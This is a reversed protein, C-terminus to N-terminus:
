FLNEEKERLFEAREKALRNALRQEPLLDLNGDRVKALMKEFLPRDMTQPALFQAELAFVMLFRDGNVKAALDFHKKAEGPNGGLMPPRSAYYVGYFLHPGGYFFNPALELLRAMMAEVIALDSVSRVDEKTLNIYGGWNLATWFVAEVDKQSLGALEKRLPGLGLDIARRLKNNRAEILELGFNKGRSYFLKARDLYVSYRVADKDKYQLLRNELFGFAYTGYSKALLMLYTENGPNHRQFAELTKIIVPGSQEAIEIDSEEEFVPAGSKM